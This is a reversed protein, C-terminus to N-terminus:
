PFSITAFDSQCVNGDFTAISYTVPQNELKNHDEFELINASTQGIFQGDRFIVYGAANPSTSASWSLVNYYETFLNFQNTKQVVSLNSPPAFCSGSKTVAQIVKNTGNYSTWVASAYSNNPDSSAAIRPYGNEAGQSLSSQTAWGLRYSNIYLGAYYITLSSDPDLGMFVARALGAAEVALDLSYGYLNSMLLCLPPSWQATPHKWTGYFSYISACCSFTSGDESINWFAIANGNGDFAICAKLLSPNLIGSTSIDVPPTWSENFPMTSAQLIVDSYVASALTYRFWVAAANGNVDVAIKPYVSNYTPNSIAQAIGWSGNLTKSIAYVTDVASVVAHWVAVVNGSASIAIQPSDAGSAALVDPSNPWSGGILKTSSQISGSIEWIAVINGSTDIAIQPSTAGSTSLSTSASWGGNFPKAAASIIGAEIWIATANGTSDFALRPSSAGSNSIATASSWTGGYSFNSSKIFGNEVWLAVANGSADIGIQPDSADQDISSITIPPYSWPVANTVLPLACLIVLVMRFIIKM